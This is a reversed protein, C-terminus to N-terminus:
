STGRFLRQCRPEPLRTPHIAVYDGSEPIVSKLQGQCFSFFAYGLEGLIQTAHATSVGARSCAQPNLEFLITPFHKALINRAGSLVRFEHGEVDLKIVSPPPLARASWLEDLSVRRISIEKLTEDPDLTLSNRGPDDHVGLQTYGARDSLALEFLETNELHNRRINALAIRYSDPFPEFSFVRGAAGVLRGALVTYLGFNAGGDIFVDGSSLYSELFSIEFEYDRRFVYFVKAPSRFISPPLFSAKWQPIKMTPCRGLAVLFYWSMVRALSACPARFFGPHGLFFRTSPVVGSFLKERM